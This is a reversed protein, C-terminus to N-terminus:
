RGHVLNLPELAWSLFVRFFYFLCDRQLLPNVLNSPELANVLYDLTWWDGSLWLLTRITSRLALIVAKQLCQVHVALYAHFPIVKLIVHIKCKFLQPGVHPKSVRARTQSSPWCILAWLAIILVRHGNKESTNFFSKCGCGKIKIIPTREASNSATM